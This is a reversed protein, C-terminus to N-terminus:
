IMANRAYEFHQTPKRIRSSRRIDPDDENSGSELHNEDSLAQVPKHVQVQLNPQELPAEVEDQAELAEFPDFPEDLEGSLQDRGPWNYRLRENEFFIVNSSRILKNNAPNYVRYQCTTAEYGVFIMRVSNPDLKLRTEKAQYAYALCGFVQLHSISPKERTFAEHPSKSDPGIPLRNRLYNATNVAEGWFKPPLRADFLLAKAITILTRNLREAVGNQEPTYYVTFEVTIGINALEEKLSVYEKANDTRITTIKFGTRLEAYEKYQYFCKRVEKRSVILYITSHRTYDCIFSLFYVAGGLSPVSYPGWVDSYIKGLPVTARKPAVRNVIRLQKSFICPECVGLPVEVLPELDQVVKYLDLLKERGIHGFRRHWLEWDVASKPAVM